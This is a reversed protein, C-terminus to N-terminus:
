YKDDIMTPNTLGFDNLLENRNVAQVHGDPMLANASKAHRLAVYIQNPKWVGESISGAAQAAESLLVHKIGTKKDMMPVKDLRYTLAKLARAGAYDVYDAIQYPAGYIYWRAAVKNLNYEMKEKKPCTAITTIASAPAYKGSIVRPANGSGDSYNDYLSEAWMRLRSNEYFIEDHPNIWGANDASYFSYFTGNQKLNNTCAIGKSRERAKNLAPLLMAALIAIIAIVILLEILTFYKRM